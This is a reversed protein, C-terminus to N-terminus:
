ESRLAKVPNMLAARVSQISVTLLAIMVAAIGASAYMWWELSIRYTYLHLWQLMIYSAVPSAIMIAILVPKLFDKSLLMTVQAVGAGMVKRIGIEKKRRAAAFVSLGLLGMCSILIALGAFINILTGLLKESAYKQEYAQDVFTYEFPFDPNLKHYAKELRAMGESVSLHPNLKFTISGRWGPNYPIVMASTPVYAMEWVFDKAVGTITRTQGNLVIQQGVVPERLHMVKVAAENLLISLSDGASQFDRGEKIQVGFTAAFNETATLIGFTTNEEGPLQGPWKLGWVSGGVEAISSMMVSGNVAAGTATAEQRFTNYDDYVKGELEVNVLGKPDYGLPRSRIFDLQRYIVITVLILIIALSFQFVVLTQRSIFSGKIEVLGGKLVKVPRFSSLVFAPYSGSIIGTVIALGVVAIWFYAPALSLKLASNALANFGPLVLWMCGVSLILSIFVVLMSESMFQGILMHRDAGVSKRVGVEKARRESQATSLNIFNVCAILLIGLALLGFLRVSAIEGGVVKGEKMKGYLKWQSMPHITLFSTEAVIGNQKHLIDRVKRSVVAPDATPLLQVYTQLSFNGWQNEKVWPMIVECFSWSLLYSFRISSNAPPDKVVGEVVLPHAMDLTVIQGIPEADGFLKRATSETLVIVNPDKLKRQGKILPFTFVDLFNPDVNPGALKLSKDGAKLLHSVTYTSRVVAKIEPINKQLYGALPVPTNRSGEAGTRMLYIDRRQKHFSDYSFQFLVYLLLTFSVTMGVTLGAINIASFTRNRWLNRWAIKIYSEVM